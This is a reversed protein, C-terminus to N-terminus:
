KAFACLIKLWDAPSRRDDPFAASYREAARTADCTLIHRYDSLFAACPVTADKTSTPPTTQPMASVSARGASSAACNISNSISVDGTQKPLLDDGYHQALVKLDTISWAVRGHLKRSAAAPTQGIIRAVDNTRIGRDRIRQSIDQSEDLGFRGEIDNRPM